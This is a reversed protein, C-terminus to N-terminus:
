QEGAGYESAVLTGSFRDRCPHAACRRPVLWSGGELSPHFPTASEPSPRFGTNQVNGPDRGARFRPNVLAVTHSTGLWAPRATDATPWPGGGTRNSAKDARTPHQHARGRRPFRVLRSQLRGIVGLFFRSHHPEGANYRNEFTIASHPSRNRYFPLM